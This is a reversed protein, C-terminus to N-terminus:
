TIGAPRNKSFTDCRPATKRISAKNSSCARKKEHTPSSDFLRKHRGTNYVSKIISLRSM